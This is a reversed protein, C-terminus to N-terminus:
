ARARAPCATCQYSGFLFYVASCTRCEATHLFDLAATILQDVVRAPDQKAQGTGFVPFLVSRLPKRRRKRQNFRTLEHLVETVCEGIDDVPSFGRTPRGQVAAVHALLRVNNPPNALNGPNTLIVTHPAVQVGRRRTRRLQARQTGDLTESIKQLQRRMVKAAERALEAAVADDSALILDGYLFNNAGHFRISASVASECFRAMQMQTNESNVWVDVGGVGLLDGTIYGISADPRKSLLYSVRAPPGSIPGGASRAAIIVRHVESDPEAGGRAQRVAKVIAEQGTRRGEETKHDYVAHKLVAIDFPTRPADAHKLLVTTNPRIAHRIGLEYYVNANHQSIDAIVLDANIISRYMQESISGPAHDDKARMCEYQLEGEVAPRIIAEFVDDFNVTRVSGDPNVGCPKEGFPIVVFCSRKM